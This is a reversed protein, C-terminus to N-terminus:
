NLYNLIKTLVHKENKLYVERGHISILIYNDTTVECSSVAELKFSFDVFLPKVEIQPPDKLDLIANKQIEKINEIYLRKALM